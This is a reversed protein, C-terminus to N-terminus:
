GSRREESRGGGGGAGRVQCIDVVTEGYRARRMRRLPGIGEELEERRGHQCLVLAGEALLGGAGLVAMAEALEGSGYPPDVYVLDFREGRRALAGLARLVPLAMVRARDAVGCRSANERIAEAAPRHSEVFVAEAAGRSLAELGVAGVGAYLDLFRAGVVKNGLMGFVSERVRDATPRLARGRLSRLTRGKATGAIIRM